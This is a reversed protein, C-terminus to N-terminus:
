VAGANGTGCAAGAWSPIPVHELDAITLSLNTRLIAAEIETPLGCIDRRGEVHQVAFSRLREEALNAGGELM